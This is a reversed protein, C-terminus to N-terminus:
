IRLYHAGITYGLRFGIEPFHFSMSPRPILLKDTATTPRNKKKSVNWFWMSAMIVSGGRLVIGTGGLGGAGM